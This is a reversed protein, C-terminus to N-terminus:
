LANPDCATPKGTWLWCVHHNCVGNHRTQYLKYLCCYYPTYTKCAGEGGTSANCWGWDRFNILERGLITYQTTGGSHVIICAENVSICDLPTETCCAPTGYDCVGNASGPPPDGWGPVPQAMAFDLFVSLTLYLASLSSAAVRVREKRRTM